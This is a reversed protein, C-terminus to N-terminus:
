PLLRERALPRVDIEFTEMVDPWRPIDGHVMLTWVVGNNNSTFSHMTDEPIEVEATGQPIEWDNSTSVLDFSAFALRDTHTNTGRRYTATEHGELAIELHTIRGARGTFAWSVRLRSGLRPSSPTITLRPRPNFAALAMYFIGIVLALGVLVFPIMFITLFWEPNGSVFGKYVQWLFVSIIGNWLAAVIVMGVVKAIPGAEPELTQQAADIETEFQPKHDRSSTTAQGSVVAATSRSSKLTGTTLAAGALLFVLPFLGILYVPRPRRDLVSRSPDEPHVFCSVAVGPPYRDATAKQDGYDSSGLPFFSRRNSRWQRGAAEYEYLIDARYSTGDDTSWSRVTSSVVVAPTEVWTVAMALRAVPIFLLFISLGGGVLTFVLGVALGIKRGMGKVGRARQSISEGGGAGLSGPLGKWTIYIGGAGIVVFLLTFLAVFVILPLHPELVAEDPRDPNVRCTTGTGPLNRDSPGRATDYSSTTTDGRRVRTSRYPRGDVEYEFLISAQYPDSDDGTEEVGGSLVTCPVEPWFWVAAVRGAEILVAATAVVGMVLFIFFFLTLCGKGGASRGGTPSSSSSSLKFQM